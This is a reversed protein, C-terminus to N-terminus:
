LVDISNQVLSSDFAPVRPKNINVKTFPLEEDKIKVNKSMRYISDTAKGKTSPFHTKSMMQKQTSTDM